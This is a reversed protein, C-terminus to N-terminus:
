QPLDVKWINALEDMLTMALRDGGVALTGGSWPYAQVGHRHLIAVPAGQPTKSEPDLPQKYLCRFGDRTSWYYVADGDPAWHLSLNWAEQCIPIARNSGDLPALFGTVSEGQGSASVYSIWGRHPSFRAIFPPQPVYLLPTKGSEGIRLQFLSNDRACLLFEGDRSWDHLVPCGTTLVRDTKEAINRLLVSGKSGQDRVFVIRSGTYDLFLPGQLSPSAHLLQETGSRLDKLCIDPSGARETIFALVNGDGSLAPWTGHYGPRLSDDHTLQQLPASGTLDFGWINTRRREPAFLIALRGGSERTIRAGTAGIASPVVRTQGATGSTGIEVEFLFSTDRQRAGFLLRGEIWDQPCMSAAPLNRAQLQRQIGLPRAPENRPETAKAIWLDYNHGTVDAAAFVTESGDPSWVPCQADATGYDLQEPVGGGAPITFVHGVQDTATGTFAIWKGDPSFRPMYGGKAVLNPKGGQAPISWIGEEKRWSRFVVQKGDPSIDPTIDHAPDDTLQRPEKGRQQMWIDSNGHPGRDSSYVLVSGDKSVAPQATWGTDFTIQVPVGPFQPHSRWNGFLTFLLFFLAAACAVFSYFGKRWARQPRKASLYSFTAGYHGVPIDIRIHDGSGCGSYYEALKRRVTNVEVRVLTHRRPDYEPRDFVERALVIEKLADGRGECSETVIKRLLLQHRVSSRFSESALVKELQEQVAKTFSESGVQPAGAV